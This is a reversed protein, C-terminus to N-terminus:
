GGNITVLVQQMQPAAMVRRWGNFKEVSVGVHEVCQWACFRLRGGTVFGHATQPSGMVRWADCNLATSGV